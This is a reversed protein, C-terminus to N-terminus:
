CARSSSGMRKWCSARWSGAVRIKRQRASDGSVRVRDNPRAQDSACGQLLCRKRNWLLIADNKDGPIGLRLSASSRITSPRRRLPSSGPRWMRSRHATAPVIRCSATSEHSAAQEKASRNLCRKTGIRTGVLTVRRARCFAAETAPRSKVVSTIIASAGFSSDVLFHLVRFTPLGCRLSRTTLRNARRTVFPMAGFLRQQILQDLLVVRQQQGRQGFLFLM